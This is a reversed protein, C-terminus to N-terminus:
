FPLLHIWSQYCKHGWFHPIESRNALFFKIKLCLSRILKTVLRPFHSRLAGLHVARVFLFAGVQILRHTKSEIPLTLLLLLFGEQAALSAWLENWWARDSGTCKMTAEHYQSAYFSGYLGFPCSVCCVGLLLDFASGMRVISSYL